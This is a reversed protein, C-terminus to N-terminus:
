YKQRLLLLGNHGSITAAYETYTRKLVTPKHNCTHYITGQNTLKKIVSPRVISSLEHSTLLDVQEYQIITDM